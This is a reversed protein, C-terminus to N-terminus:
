VPDRVNSLFIANMRQRGPLAFLPGTTRPLCRTRASKRLPSPPHKGFGRLFDALVDSMGDLWQPRLQARRTNTSDLVSRLAYRPVVLKDGNRSDQRSCSGGVPIVLALAVSRDVISQVLVQRTRQGGLQPCETSFFANLAGPFSKFEQPGYSAEQEALRKSM